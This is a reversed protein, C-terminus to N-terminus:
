IDVISFAELLSLKVLQASFHSITPTLAPSIPIWQARFYPIEQYERTITLSISHYFVSQTLFWFCLISMERSIHQQLLIMWNQIIISLFLMSVRKNNNNYHFCINNPTMLCNTTSLPLIVSSMFKTLLYSFILSSLYVSFSLDLSFLHSQSPPPFQHLHLNSPLFIVPTTDVPLLCSASPKASTFPTPFVSVSMLLESLRRKRVALRM